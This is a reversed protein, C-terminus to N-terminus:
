FTEDEDEQHTPVRSSPSDQPQRYTTVDAVM